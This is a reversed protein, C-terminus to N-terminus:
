IEIDIGRRKFEAVLRGKEAGEIINNRLNVFRVRTRKLLALSELAAERTIRNNSLDINELRATQLCRLLSELGDGTIKNQGLYLWRYEKHRAFFDHLGRM